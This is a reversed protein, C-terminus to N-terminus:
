QDPGLRAESADSEVLASPTRGFRERIRREFTSYDGFGAESSMRLLTRAKRGGLLEWLFHETRLFQAYALPSFAFQKKFARLLYFENTGLTKALARLSPPDGYQQELIQKARLMRRTAATTEIVLPEQGALREVVEASAAAATALADHASQRWARDISRFAHAPMSRARALRLGHDAIDSQLDVMLVRGGAGVRVAHPLGRPVLCADGARITVMQKAPGIELTVEGELVLNLEGSRTSVCPCPTDDEVTAYARLSLSGDQTWRLQRGPRNTSLQRIRM